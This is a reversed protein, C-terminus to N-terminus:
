GDVKEICITKPAHRIYNDAVTHFQKEDFPTKRFGSLAELIFYCYIYIIIKYNICSNRYCIICKVSVM